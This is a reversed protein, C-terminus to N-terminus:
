TNAKNDTNNNENKVLTFAAVQVPDGGSTMDLKDGYKKPLVKSLYWKRADVRLRSRQIHESNVSRVVRGEDDDDDGGVLREMYDNSGDDAIEVLEDFMNEARTNCAKEYQDYFDKKEKELLWDHVTARNPMEESKCINRLSEGEAIRSCITDALKQSFISPRGIAM